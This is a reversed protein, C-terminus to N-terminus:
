ILEGGTNEPNIRPLLASQHELPFYRFSNLKFQICAEDKRL